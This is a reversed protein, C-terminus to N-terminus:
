YAQGIFISKGIMLNLARRRGEGAGRSKMGVVAVNGWAHALEGAREGRHARERPHASDSHYAVRTGPM